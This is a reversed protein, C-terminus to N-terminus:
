VNRPQAQESHDCRAPRQIAEGRASGFCAQAPFLFCHARHAVTVMQRFIPRLDFYWNQQLAHQITYYLATSKGCGKPGRLVVARTRAIDKSLASLNSM